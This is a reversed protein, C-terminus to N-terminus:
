KSGPQPADEEFVKAAEWREQVERQIDLLENLKATGKRNSGSM